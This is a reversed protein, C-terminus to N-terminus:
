ANFYKLKTELLPIAEILEEIGFELDYQLKFGTNRIKEYSVIYNRRDKDKGIDAFYLYFDIKNNIKKCIDEKSYNLSEEGVNFVNNKM